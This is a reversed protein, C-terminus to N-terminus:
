RSIGSHMIIVDKCHEFVVQESNECKALRDTESLIRQIDCKFAAMYMKVEVFLAIIACFTKSACILAFSQSIAIVICHITNREFPTRHFSISFYELCYFYIIFRQATGVLSSLLIAVLGDFIKGFGLPICGCPIADCVYVDAGVSRELLHQCQIEGTEGNAHVIGRECDIEIRYIFGNLNARVVFINRNRVCKQQYNSGYRQLTRQISPSQDHLALIFDTSILVANGGVDNWVGFHYKHSHEAHFRGYVDISM